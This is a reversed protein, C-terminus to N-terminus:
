KALIEELTKGERLAKYVFSKSKCHARCASALTPYSVGGVTVPRCNSSNENQETRTSWKCNEPEYDGESDKRDITMNAPAEGMDKLFTEFSNLWQSCVKIGRGGYRDWSKHKPNLCRQKMAQYKSYTSDSSSGHGHSTTGLTCHKCGGNTVLKGKLKTIDTEYAFGCECVVPYKLGNKSVPDGTVTLKGFIDGLVPKM